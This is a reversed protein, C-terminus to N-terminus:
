ILGLKELKTFRTGTMEFVFTSNDISYDDNTQRIEVVISNLKLQRKYGKIQEKRWDIMDDNKGCIRIHEPSKMSVIDDECKQMENQINRRYERFADVGKSIADPIDIAFIDFNMRGIFVVIETKLTIDTTITKSKM